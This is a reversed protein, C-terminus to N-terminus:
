SKRLISTNLLRYSEKITSRKIAERLPLMGEFKFYLKQGEKYDHEINQSYAVIHTLQNMEYSKIMKDINSLCVNFRNNPKRKLDIFTNEDYMWDHRWQYREGNVKPAKKLKGVREATKEFALADVNARNSYAPKKAEEDLENLLWRDVVYTHTDIIHKIDEIM